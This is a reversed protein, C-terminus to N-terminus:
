QGEADVHSIWRWRRRNVLTRIGEQKTQRLLQDNSIKLPWFIRMIKKLSATHFSALKSLNKETM